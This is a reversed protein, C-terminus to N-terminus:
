IRNRYKGTVGFIGDRIGKLIFALKNLKQDEFVVILFLSNLFSMADWIAYNPYKLAYKKWIHFRNRSVYYHRLASHFTPTFSKGLLYCIKQNGYEQYLISENDIYVSYGHSNVRLCYENDVGEIFLGEDFRGISDWVRLDILSGSTINFLVRLPELDVDSRSYPFKYSLTMYKSRIVDQSEDQSINLINPGAIACKECSTILNCLSVVMKESILSDQDLLVAYVFDNEVLYECGLNLAKAIGLNYENSIVHLRNFDLEENGILKNLYNGGSNDVVVVNDVQAMAAKLNTIFTSNPNFTVIVCGVREM